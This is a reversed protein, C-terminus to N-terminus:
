NGSGWLDDDSTDDKKKWDDIDVTNEKLVSGAIMQATEMRMCQM